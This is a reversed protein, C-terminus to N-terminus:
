VKNNSQGHWLINRLSQFHNKYVERMSFTKIALVILVLTNCATLLNFTSTPTLDSSKFDM